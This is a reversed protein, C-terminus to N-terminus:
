NTVKKEYPSNPENFQSPTISLDIEIKNENLNKIEELTLNKWEPKYGWIFDLGIKIAYKSIIEHMNLDCAEDIKKLLDVEEMHYAKKNKNRLVEIQKIDCGAMESLEKNKFHFFGKQDLRSDFTEGLTFDNNMHQQNQNKNYRMEGRGTIVWDMNLEEYATYIKELKDSGLASNNNFITHSLFSKKCFERKSIRKFEIFQLLRAKTDM